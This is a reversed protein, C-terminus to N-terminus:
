IFKLFEYLNYLTKLLFPDLLFLCSLSSSNIIIAYTIATEITKWSAAAKMAKRSIRKVLFEIGHPKIDAAKIIMDTLRM